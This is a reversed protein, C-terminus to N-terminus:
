FRKKVIVPLYNSGYINGDEDEVWIKKFSISYTDDTDMEDPNLEGDAIRMKLIKAAASKLADRVVLEDPTDGKVEVEVKEELETSDVWDFDDEGEFALYYKTTEKSDKVEMKKAHERLTELLKNDDNDAYEEKFKALDGTTKIGLKKALDFMEDLELNNYGDEIFVDDIDADELTKDKDYLEVNYKEKLVKEATTASPLNYIGQNWRGDEPSYGLGIVYDDPVPRYVIVHMRNDDLDEYAHIIEFGQRTKDMYTFDKFSSIPEFMDKVKSDNISEDKIDVTVKFYEEDDYSGIYEVAVCEKDCELEDAFNKWLGNPHVKGTLQIDSEDTTKFRGNKTIVLSEYKEDKIQKSDAFFYPKDINKLVSAYARGFSDNHVYIREALKEIIDEYEVGHDTALKEITEKFNEPVTTKSSNGEVINKTANIQSQTVAGMENVVMANTAVRDNSLQIIRNIEKKIEALRMKEKASLEFSLEEKEVLDMYESYLEAPLRRIAQEETFPKNLKRQANSAIEYNQLKNLYRGKKSFNQPPTAGTEYNYLKGSEEDDWSEAFTGYEYRSLIFLKDDRADYVIFLDDSSDGSPHPYKGVVHGSKNKLKINNLEVFKPELIGYDGSIFRRLKENILRDTWTSDDYYYEKFIKGIVKKSPEGVSDFIKHNDAINYFRVKM